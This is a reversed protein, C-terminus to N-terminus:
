GESADFDKELKYIAIQDKTYPQPKIFLDRLRPETELMERKAAHLAAIALSRANSEGGSVTLVLGIPEDCARSLLAKLEDRRSTNSITPM